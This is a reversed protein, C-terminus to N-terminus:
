LDGGSFHAQLRRATSEKEGEPLSDIFKQTFYPRLPHDVPIERIQAEIADKSMGSNNLHELLHKRLYALAEGTTIPM